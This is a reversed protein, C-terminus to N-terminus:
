AEAVTTLILLWDWFETHVPITRTPLRMTSLDDLYCGTRAEEELPDTAVVSYTSCVAGSAALHGEHELAGFDESVNELFAM